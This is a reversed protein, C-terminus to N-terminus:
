NQRPKVIGDHIIYYVVTSDPHLVALLLRKARQKGGDTTFPPAPADIADFVTAFGAVSFSEALHMPLVWEVCPKELASADIGAGLAARQDDPHLYLLRPPLGRILTRPAPRKTLDPGASSEHILEIDNWAHQNKLNTIIAEALAQTKTDM